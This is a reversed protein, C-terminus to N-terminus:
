LSVCFALFFAILFALYTVQGSPKKLSMIHLKIEEETFHEVLSVGRKNRKQLSMTDANVESKIGEDCKMPEVIDEPKENNLPREETQINRKTPAMLDRFSSVHVVPEPKKSVLPSNDKVDEKTIDSDSSGPTTSTNYCRRAYSSDEESSTPPVSCKQEAIVKDAQASDPVPELYPLGSSYNWPHPINLKLPEEKRRWKPPFYDFLLPVGNQDYTVNIQSNRSGLYEVDEDDSIVIPEQQSNLLQNFEDFDQSEDPENNPLNPMLNRKRKRSQEM